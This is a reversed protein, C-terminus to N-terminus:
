KLCTMKRSQRTVGDTLTLIYVGSAVPSGAVDTGDWRYSWEGAPLFGKEIEKILSGDASYIDLSINGEKVTKFRITTSANFPNPFNQLLEFESPLVTNESKVSTIGYVPIVEVSAIVNGNADEGGFVYISDGFKVTMPDTRGINLAPTAVTVFGDGTLRLLESTSLAPSLQDYGGLLMVNADDIKVASGGARVGALGQFLEVFTGNEISYKFIKSTVSHRVGGFIYIDNGLRATMQDLPFQLPSPATGGTSEVRGQPINYKLIEPQDPELTYGGFVFLNSDVIEGAAYSRRFVTHSSHVFPTNHYDYVELANHFGFGPVSGGTYVINGNYDGAIFGARGFKMTDVTLWVGTRPNFSQIINTIRGISEDFGGVIYILSDKVIAKGGSVPAPMEGRIRWGQATVMTIMAIALLFVLTIKKM